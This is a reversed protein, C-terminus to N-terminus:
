KASYSKSYFLIEFIYGTMGGITYSFIDYWQFNNGLILRSVKYSRISNIWDAQYLQLFEISYCFFLTLLLIKYSKIKTLIFGFILFCLISYLYDGVYNNIWNSLLDTRSFLGVIITIIILLLYVKQNRKM